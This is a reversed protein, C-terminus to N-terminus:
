WGLKFMTAQELIRKQEPTFNTAFGNKWKEYEEPNNRAINEAQVIIDEQDPQIKARYAYRPAAGVTQSIGKKLGSKVGAEPKVSLAKTPEYKTTISEFADKIPQHRNMIQKFASQYEYPDSVNVIGFKPNARAGMTYEGNVNQIPFKEMMKDTSLKGQAVEAIANHIEKVENPFKINSEPGILAQKTLPKKSDAISYINKEKDAIQKEAQAVYDKALEDKHLGVDELINGAKKTAKTDVRKLIDGAGKWTAASGVGGTLGAGIIEAPNIAEYDSLGERVAEQAGSEIVNAGIRGLVNRGITPVARGLVRSGPMVINAAQMGFDKYAMPSTLYEGWTTPGEGQEAAHYLEPFAIKGVQAKVWELPHKRFSPHLEQQRIKERDYDIKQKSLESLLKGRAQVLDMNPYANAARNNLEQLSWKGYYNPSEEDFTWAAAKLNEVNYSKSDEKPQEQPLKAAFVPFLKKAVSLNTQLYKEKDGSKQYNLLFNEQETSLNNVDLQDFGAEFEKTM